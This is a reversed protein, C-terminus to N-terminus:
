IFNILTGISIIHYGGISVHVVNDNNYNHLSFFHILIYKSLITYKM